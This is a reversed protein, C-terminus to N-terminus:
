ARRHPLCLQRLELLKLGLEILLTPLCLLQAGCKLLLAGCTTCMGLRRRTNGPLADPSGTPSRVLVMLSRHVSWWCPLALCDYCGTRLCGRHVIANPLRGFLPSQVVRAPVGIVAVGAVDDTALFVGRSPTSMEVGLM